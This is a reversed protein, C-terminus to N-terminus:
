KGAGKKAAPKKRMFGPVKGAAKDAAARERAARKRNKTSLADRQRAIVDAVIPPIVMRFSGAADLYTIFITDGEDRQRITQVTFTQTGQIFPTLTQRTAPPSATTDPKGHLSGFAADFKDVSKYEDAM